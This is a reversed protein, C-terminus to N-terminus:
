HIVNQRQKALSIQLKESIKNSVKINHLSKLEDNQNIKNKDGKKYCIYIKSSKQGQNLSDSNNKEEFRLYGVNAM